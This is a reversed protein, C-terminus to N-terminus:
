DHDQNWREILRDVKDNIDRLERWIRDEIRQQNERLLRIQSELDNKVAVAAREGLWDGRLVGAGGGIIVGFALLAISKWVEEM